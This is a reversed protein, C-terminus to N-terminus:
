HLRLLRPLHSFSGLLMMCNFTGRIPIHSMLSVRGDTREYGRFQTINKKGLLEM